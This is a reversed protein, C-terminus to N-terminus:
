SQILSVKILTKLSQLPSSVKLYLGFSNCLEGFLVWSFISLILHSVYM